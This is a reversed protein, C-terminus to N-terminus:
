KVEPPSPAPPTYAQCSGAVLEGDDDYAVSCAINDEACHGYSTCRNCGLSEPCFGQGICIPLDKDLIGLGMVCYYGICEKECQRHTMGCIDIPDDSTCLEMIVDKGVGHRM